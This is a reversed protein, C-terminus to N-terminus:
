QCITITLQGASTPATIPAVPSCGPECTATAVPEWILVGGSSVAIWTQEGICPDVAGITQNCNMPSSTITTPWGAAGTQSKTTGGNDGVCYQNLTGWGYSTTFSNSIQTFTNSQDCKFNSCSYQITGTTSWATQPVNDGLPKHTVGNYCDTTAPFYTLAKAYFYNITLTATGTAGIVRLNSTNRWPGNIYGLPWSTFGSANPAPAATDSFQFYNIAGLYQCTGNVCYPTVNVMNGLGMPVPCPNGYIDNFSGPLSFSVCNECCQKLCPFNFIRPDNQLKHDYPTYNQSWISGGGATPRSDQLISAQSPNALGLSSPNNVSWVKWATGDTNHIAPPKNRDSTNDYFACRTDDTWLFGEPEGNAAYPQVGKCVTGVPNLSKDFTQWGTQGIVYIKTPSIRLVAAVGLEGSCSAGLPPAYVFFKLSLSTASPYIQDKDYKRLGNNVTYNGTQFNTNGGLVYVSDDTDIQANIVWDIAGTPAGSPYGVPITFGSNGYNAIVVDQITGVVSGDDLNLILIQMTKPLGVNLGQLNGWNVQSAFIARTTGAGLMYSAGYPLTIRWLQQGDSCRLATVTPPRNVNYQALNSSQAWRLNSDCVIVCPIGNSYAFRCSVQGIPATPGNPSESWSWRYQGNADWSRVTYMPAQTAGSPAVLNTPGGAQYVNGLNDVDCEGVGPANFKSVANSLSDFYFNAEWLTSGNSDVKYLTRAQNCCCLNLGPM